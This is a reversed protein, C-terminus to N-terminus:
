TAFAEVILFTDDAIIRTISVFRDIIEIWQSSNWVTLHLSNGHHDKYESERCSIGFAFRDANVQSIQGLVNPILDTPVHEMVDCCLALDFHFGALKDTINDLSAHIFTQQPHIIKARNIAVDSVDVGVYNAFVGALVANGCGLDCLRFETSYNCTDVVLQPSGPPYGKRYLRNYIDRSTDAWDDDIRAPLPAMGTLRGNQKSPRNRAHKQHLMNQTHVSRTRFQM